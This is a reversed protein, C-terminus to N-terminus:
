GVDHKQGELDKRGLIPQVFRFVRNKDNRCFLLGELSPRARAASLCCKGAVQCLTDVTSSGRSSTVWGEREGLCPIWSLEVFYGEQIREEEENQLGRLPSSCSQLDVGWGLGEPSM